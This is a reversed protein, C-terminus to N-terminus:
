SNLSDVFRQLAESDFRPNKEAQSLLTNAESLQNQSVLLRLLQILAQTDSHQQLYRSLVQIAGDWQQDLMLAEAYLPQYKPHWSALLALAKQGIEQRNLGFALPYLQQQIAPIRHLPDMSLYHLLADKPQEKLELLMGAALYKVQQYESGQTHSLQRGIDQLLRLAKADFAVQLREVFEQPSDFRQAFAKDLASEDQLKFAFAAQLQAVQDPFQQRYFAEKQPALHQVWVQFRGPIETQLWHQALAPFDPEASLESQRWALEEQVAELQELFKEAAFHLGGFFGSLSDIMEQHSMQTLSEVPKLTRMFAKYGYNVFTQYDPGVTIELSKKLKLVKDIRSKQLQPAAFLKQCLPLAKASDRLIQQLWQRHKKLDARFQQQFDSEVQRNYALPQAYLETITPKIQTLHINEIPCYTVNEIVAAGDSLNFTRLEPWQKQLRQLQEEFLNRADYLQINTGVTEGRYNVAYTHIKDPQAKQSEISGSEHCKGDPTFCYDVGALYVHQAGLYAAVGFLANTVTPGDSIFNNESDKAWPFRRRSYTKLGPWQRILGKFPHEGTVLISRNAFHYMEKAYDFMLPQADFIGIFDPEIGEQILRKCIRGAAFIWLKEQNQQIWPIVADLSPGGGLIIAPIDASLSAEIKKLPHVLDCSNELQWNFVQMFDHNDVRDILFRHYAEKFTQHITEYGPTAGSVSLSSLITVAGRIVYDQYPEYLQEFDFVEFAGCEFKFHPFAKSDFQKLPELSALYDLVIFRQSRNAIKALYPLILGADSGLVVFLREDPLAEGIFIPYIENSPQNDLLSPYVESFVSEGQQTLTTQM